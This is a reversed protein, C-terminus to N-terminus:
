PRTVLLVRSAWGGSATGTRVIYVGAPANGADWIGTQRDPGAQHLMCESVRRGAPSYIGVRDDRGPSLRATRATIIFRGRGISPQITLLPRLLSAASRTGSEGVGAPASDVCICGEFPLCNGGTVTLDLTEPRSTTFVLATRGLSDTYGYQYVSDTSATDQVRNRVCVLANRVPAGSRKVGVALTDVGVAVMSDLEIEPAQPVGTWIVLGPDGFLIFGMYNMTDSPYLEHIRMKGQLVSNGLYPISDSFMREMFGRTMASRQGAVDSANYVNGVVAVAGAPNTVTGVKVWTNGTMSDSPYEDLSLTQCTFSGVVPLRWGNTFSGFMPRLDFPTYWCDTAEGRYFLFSTGDNVTNVIDTASRGRTSSLSDFATYGATEAMAAVYRADGWYTTSDNDDSDNIVATMRHFWLTDGTYPTREYGLTKAVMISCQEVSNCPFRGFPLEVLRDGIMNGYDNDTFIWKMPQTHMFAPFLSVGGVLLVFEPRPSWTNWANIIYARIQANTPNSGIQSLKVVACSMGQQQKWQALPQIANYYDDHTVILYRAGNQASALSTLLLMSIFASHLICFASHLLENQSKGEASQM